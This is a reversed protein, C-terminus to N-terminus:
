TVCRNKCYFQAKQTTWAAAKYRSELFLWPLSLTWKLATVFFLLPPLVHVSHIPVLLVSSYLLNAQSSKVHSKFVETHQLATTNPTHSKPLGKDMFVLPSLSFLNTHLSRLNHLDALTYYNNTTVVQLNNIFRIVLGCGHRPWGFV